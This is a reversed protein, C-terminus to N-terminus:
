GQPDLGAGSDGNATPPPEEKPPEEAAVVAVIREVFELLLDWVAFELRPVGDADAPREAAAAVSVPTSVGLCVVLAPVLLFRVSKVSM